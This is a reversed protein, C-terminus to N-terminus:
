LRRIEVYTHRKRSRSRGLFYAVLVMLIIVVVGASVGIPAAAQATTQVTGDIEHLKARIQDPTVREQTLELAAM